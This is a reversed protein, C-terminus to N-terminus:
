GPLHLLAVPGPAGQSWGPWLQEAAEPPAQLAPCHSPAVGGESAEQDAPTHGWDAPGHKLDQTGHGLLQPTDAAARPMRCASVADSCSPSHTLGIPRLCM